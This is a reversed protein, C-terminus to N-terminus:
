KENNLGAAKNKKYIAAIGKTWFIMIMIRIILPGPGPNIKLHLLLKIMLVADVAFVILGLLLPWFKKEKRGWLFFGLLIGGVLLNHSGFGLYQLIKVDGVIAIAGVVLNLVCLLGMIQYAIKIKTEPHAGTGPVIEGNFKIILEINPFSSMQIELKSGDQATLTARKSLMANAPWKGLCEDGLWIEQAKFLGPRKVMIFETKGNRTVQWKM